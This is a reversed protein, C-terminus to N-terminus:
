PTVEVRGTMDQHSVGCFEHCVIQHRGPAEFKAQAYTVAGPLAMLNVNTGDIYFGHVIDKSTVYFDVTSGRPVVIKGPLFSWNKAVVHAEYRGPAVQTVGGETFPKVNTVCDPVSIGLKVAGYAIVALMAASFLLAAGVVKREVSAAEAM